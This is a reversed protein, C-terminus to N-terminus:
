LSPAAPGVPDGMWWGVYAMLARGVWDPGFEVLCELPYYFLEFGDNFWEPCWPRDVLLAVPGVSLPYAVLAFLLMGVVLGALPLPKHPADSM